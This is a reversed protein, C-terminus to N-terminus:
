IALCCFHSTRQPMRVPFASHQLSGYVAKITIDAMDEGTSLVFAAPLPLGNKHRM